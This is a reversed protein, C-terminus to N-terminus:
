KRSSKRFYAFRWDQILESELLWTGFNLANFRDNSLDALMTSEVLRFKRPEDDDRKTVVWTGGKPCKMVSGILIRM